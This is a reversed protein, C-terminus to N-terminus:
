ARHSSRAHAFRRIILLLLWYLNFVTVFLWLAWVPQGLFACVALVLLQTGLGLVTTATMFSPRLPADGPVLWRDLREMLVDQWRYLLKYLRYLRRLVVPNDWPYGEPAAEDVQSTQDGGTQARYRVYYYNFASVQLTACVLAVLALLLTGTQGTRAWAGIGIGGFVLMNVGFDCISDLFRGVRSPRARVRALSGDAADLWSKILLLLGALPLWRDLALLWAALLGVLTFTLTLHIPTVPTPALQRALWRALPRAYDSLDLFAHGAPVKDM